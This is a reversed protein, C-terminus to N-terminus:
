ARNLEADAAQFSQHACYTLEVQSQPVDCGSDGSQQAAAPTALVLVLTLAQILRHIVEITGPEITPESGWNM